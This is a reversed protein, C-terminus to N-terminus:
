PLAGRYKVSTPVVPLTLLHAYVIKNTLLHIVEIFIDTTFTNRCYDRRMCCPWFICAVSSKYCHLKHLKKLLLGMIILTMAAILIWAINRLIATDDELAPPIPTPAKTTYLGEIKLAKIPKTQSLTIIM